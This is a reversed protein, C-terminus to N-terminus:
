KQVGFLRCLKPRINRYIFNSITIAHKGNQNLRIYRPWRLLIEYRFPNLKQKKPVRAWTVYDTKAYHTIMINKKNVLINEPCYM